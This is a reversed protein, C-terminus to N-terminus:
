GLDRREGDVFVEVKEDYFAVHGALASLGAHPIRYWWALNARPESGARVTYYAATGKYPCRTVHDTPELLAMRVDSKPLYYRTPLGTEFCAVPRHSDAVTVGDVVVRVHRSSRCADVRHWPDRPHVYVQEDEEFWADLADWDFAFFGEVKALDEPPRALRLAAGDVRRGDLALDYRVVDGLRDDHDPAGEVLRADKVDGPPILYRAPGKPNRLLVARRTDFVYDGGLQGRVWRRSEHLLPVTVTPSSHRPANM